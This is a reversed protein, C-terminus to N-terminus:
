VRLKELKWVCVVGVRAELEANIVQKLQSRLQRESLLAFVTLLASSASSNSSLLSPAMPALFLLFVLSEVPTLVPCEAEPLYLVSVFRDSSIM